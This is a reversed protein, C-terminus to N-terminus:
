VEEISNEWDDVLAFRLKVTNGIKAIMIFENFHIEPEFEYAHISGDADMAVYRVWDPVDYDEGQFEITKM